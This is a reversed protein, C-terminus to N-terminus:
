VSARHPEHPASSSRKLFKISPEPRSMGLQDYISGSSAALVTQLGVGYLLLDDPRRVDHFTFHAVAKEAAKYCHEIAELRKELAHQDPGFCAIQEDTLRCLMRGESDSFMEITVDKEKGKKGKLFDVMNRCAMLSIELWANTLAAIKARMEYVSSFRVAIQEEHGLRDLLMVAHMGSELQQIRHPIHERLFTDQDFKSM